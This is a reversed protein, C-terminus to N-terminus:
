KIPQHIIWAANWTSNYAGLRVFTAGIVASDVWLMGNVNENHYRSECALRFQSIDTTTMM